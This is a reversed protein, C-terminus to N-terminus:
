THGYKGRDYCIGEEYNELQKTNFNYVMIPINLEKCEQIRKTTSQGIHWPTAIVFIDCILLKEHCMDDLLEQHPEWKEVDYIVPAFCIYGQLTLDEEIKRFIGNNFRTVGGIHVLKYKGIM